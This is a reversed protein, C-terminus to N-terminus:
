AGATYAVYLVIFCGDDRHKSGVEDQQHNHKNAQKAHANATYASKSQSSQKPFLYNPPPQQM